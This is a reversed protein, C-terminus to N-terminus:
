YEVWESELINFELDLKIDGYFLVGEAEGSRFQSVFKSHSNNALEDYVDEELYIIEYTLNDFNFQRPHVVFEAEKMASLYKDFKENYNKQYNEDYVFIIRRAWASGNDDFAMPYVAKAVRDNIDYMEDHFEGPGESSYVLWSSSM